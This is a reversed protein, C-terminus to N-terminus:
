KPKFILTFLIITIFALSTTILQAVSFVFSSNQEINALAVTLIAGWGFHIFGGLASATGAKEPKVSNLAKVLLEFPVLDM